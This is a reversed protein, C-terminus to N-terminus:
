AVEIAHILPLATPFIAVGQLIPAASFEGTLLSVGEYSIGLNDFGSCSTAGGKAAPGATVVTTIDQLSNAICSAYVPTKRERLVCLVVDNPNFPSIWDLLYACDVGQSGLATFLATGLVSQTPLNSSRISRVERTDLAFASASAACTAVTAALISFQNM